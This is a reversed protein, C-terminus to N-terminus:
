DEFVNRMGRRAMLFKLTIALEWDKEHAEYNRVLELATEDDMGELDGGDPGEFERLILMDGIIPQGHELTGYLYSGYLNISPVDKMLGEEDVVLVLGDKLNRARVIEIMDCGIAGYMWKLLNGNEPVDLVRIEGSTKALVAKKM